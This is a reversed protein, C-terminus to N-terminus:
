VVKEGSMTIYKNGKISDQISDAINLCNIGKDTIRVKCDDIVEVLERFILSRLTLTIYLKSNIDTIGEMIAGKDNFHVPIDTNNEIYKLLQIQKFLM